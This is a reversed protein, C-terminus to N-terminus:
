DFCAGLDVWVISSGPTDGQTWWQARWARGNHKVINGEFYVMSASWAPYPCAFTLETEQGASTIGPKSAPKNNGSAFSVLFAALLVFLIRPAHKTM